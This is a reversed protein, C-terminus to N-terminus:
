NSGSCGVTYFTTADTCYHLVKLYKFKQTNQTVKCFYDFKLGFSHWKPYKYQWWTECCILFPCFVTHSPKITCGVSAQETPATCEVGGCYSLSSIQLPCGDAMLARDQLGLVNSLSFTIQLCNVYCNVWRVSSGSHSGWREVQM